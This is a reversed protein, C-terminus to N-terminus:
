ETNGFAQRNDFVALNSCLIRWFGSRDLLNEERGSLPMLLEGKHIKVKIIIM